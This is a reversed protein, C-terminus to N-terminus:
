ESELRLEFNVESISKAVGFVGPCANQFTDTYGLVKKRCFHDAPGSHALAMNYTLDAHPDHQERLYAEFGAKLFAIARPDQREEPTAELLALLFTTYAEALLQDTYFCGGQWEHLIDTIISNM